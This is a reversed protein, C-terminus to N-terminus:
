LRVLHAYSIMRFPRSQPNLTASHSTRLMMLSGSVTVLSFVAMWLSHPLILASFGTRIGNEEYSHRRERQLMQSGNWELLLSGDEVGYSVLRSGRLLSGALSLELFDTDTGWEDAAVQLADKM